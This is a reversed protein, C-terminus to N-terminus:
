DYVREFEYDVDGDENKLHLNIEVKEFEKYQKLQKIVEIAGDNWGIFEGKKCIYYQTDELDNDSIYDNMSEESSFVGVVDYVDNDILVYYNGDGSENEDECVLCKTPYKSHRTGSVIEEAFVSDVVGYVGECDDAEYVVAVGGAPRPGPRQGVTKGDEIVNASFSLGYDLFEETEEVWKGDSAAYDYVDSFLTFNTSYVSNFLDISNQDNKYVHDGDIVFAEIGFEVVEDYCGFYYDPEEDQSGNMTPLPLFDKFEFGGNCVSFMGNENRIHNFANSLFAAKSLIVSVNKGKYYKDKNKMQISRKEFEKSNYIGIRLAHIFRYLVLSM